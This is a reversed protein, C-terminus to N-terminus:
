QRSPNMTLDYDNKLDRQFRIYTFYMAIRWTVIMGFALIFFIGATEMPNIYMGIYSKLTTRIAILGLLIVLFAKSRKMYIHDGVVEFRSTAILPYSLIMGCVFAAVAYTVPVHTPPYLFMMFGTSMFFPPLIIKKASVPKKAARMRIFFAMVAMFLVVITSLVAVSM